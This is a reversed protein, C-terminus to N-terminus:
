YNPDPLQDRPIGDSFVILPVSHTTRNLEPKYAQILLSEKILLRHPNSDSWVVRFEPWNIHHGTDKEHQSLSSFVSSVKDKDNDDKYAITNNKNRIRSSRRLTTSQSAQTMRSRTTNVDIRNQDDDDDPSADVRTQNFVGKPAGHERMRRIAQRETKGIYSQDCDNCKVSYVINSQMHKAISDKNRFFTQVSPPPKTFFRVDLDPRLTGALHKFQNKMSHTTRGTFPIEVYMHKKECGLIIEKQQQQENKALYKSLGIGIHVDIFSRPYKNAQGIRRIEDFEISLASYNSCISIARRIM